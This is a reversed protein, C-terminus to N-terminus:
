EILEEVICKINYRPSNNKVWFDFGRLKSMNVGLNIEMLSNRKKIIIQKVNDMNQYHKTETIQTSTVM